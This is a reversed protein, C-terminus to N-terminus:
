RVNIPQYRTVLPADAGPRGVKASWHALLCMGVAHTPESGAKYSQLSSRPISTDRALQYLSGGDRCLDTLVRFWDVRVDLPIANPM